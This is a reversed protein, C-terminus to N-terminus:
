NDANKIQMISSCLITNTPIDPNGVFLIASDNPPNVKALKYFDQRNSAHVRVVGSNPFPKGQQWDYDILEVWQNNFDKEIQNWTQKDM